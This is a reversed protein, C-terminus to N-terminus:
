TDNKKGRVKHVLLYALILMVVGLWIYKELKKGQEFAAELAPGFDGDFQDLLSRGVWHGVYVWLPVSLLAALGDLLFFTRFRVGMAGSTAFIASRLGPLFRAIFCILPGNKRVRQEAAALREDTFFRKLGPTQFVRRGFRRGLYFLMSDGALVGAFGAILAGGFSINGNAALLGSAILVIDEPVPIGMGCALLIGVITCYVVPSSLQSVSDIATQATQHIDM